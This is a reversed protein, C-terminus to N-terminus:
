ILDQGYHVDEQGRLLADVVVVVPVSDELHIASGVILIEDLLLISPQGEKEVRVLVLGRERILGELEDGLGPGDQRVWGLLGEVVVLEAEERTDVQSGGGRVVGLQWNPPGVRVRVRLGIMGVHCGGLGPKLAEPGHAGVAVDQILVRPNVLITTQLALFALPGEM